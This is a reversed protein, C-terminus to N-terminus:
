NSHQSVNLLVGIAALTAVLSSGGYSLFPLALGKTPLMGVCVGMNILGQLTVLTTLGLALHFGFRDPAGLAARLGRWFLVVFATLILLTGIVGFEEGIVAFVFDTHADPLFHAKQQGRTLGVGFTGGSGLAVLSQRLQYEIAILDDQPVLFAEIRKRRYPALAVAIALGVAGVVAAMAVHRWRLGAVFLLVGITAAIMITSGLDPEALILLLMPGLVIALPVPVAWLENVQDEKRHLVYAAFLIAVLKAFESPQVSFGPLVLWRHSGKISPMFYVAILAVFTLAVVALVVRGRALQRYPVNMLILMAVLGVAAWFCQKVLFHNEAVGFRQTPYYSTSGVMILGGLLLFGATVFLLRDYSM